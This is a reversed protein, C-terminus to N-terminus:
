KVFTSQSLASLLATEAAPMAVLVTSTPSGDAASVHYHNLYQLGFTNGKLVQEIATIGGLQVIGDLVINTLAKIKKSLVNEVVAGTIDLVWEYPSFESAGSPLGTEVLRSASGAASAAALLAASVSVRAVASPKLPISGLEVYLEHPLNQLLGKRATRSSALEMTYSDLGLVGLPTRIKKWTLHGAGTSLSYNDCVDNITSSKGIYQRQSMGEGSTLIIDGSKKVSITTGGNTKILIDGESVEEGDPRGGRYGESFSFPARYSFLCPKDKESDEDPYMVYGLGDKEPVAGIMAGDETNIYPLAIMATEIIEGTITKLSVTWNNLDVGTITALSIKAM